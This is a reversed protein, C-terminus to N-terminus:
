RDNPGRDAHHHFVAQQQQACPLSHHQDLEISWAFPLKHHSEHFTALVRWNDCRPHAANESMAGTHAVELGLLLVDLKRPAQLPSRCAWEHLNSRSGNSFRTRVIGTCHRFMLCTSRCPHGKKQLLCLTREWPMRTAWSMISMPGPILSM